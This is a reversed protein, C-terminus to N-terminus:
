RPIPNLSSLVATRQSSTNSPRTAISETIRRRLGLFERAETVAQPFRVNKAKSWLWLPTAGKVDKDAHDMFRGAHTGSLTIKLSDGADGSIGGVRYENGVVKGNPLLYQCVEQFRSVLIRNIEAADSSM